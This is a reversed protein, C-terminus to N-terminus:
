KLWEIANRNLRVKKDTEMKKLLRSVVERSTNLDNAIQQHTITIDKKGAQSFQNSLYFELREDMGKFMVHDLLTLLEDFRDRYNELVFYYWSKYNKMLEDIVSVPIMIAVTDELAKGLVQSTEQKAACIISLACAQGPNLHYIFAEEGDDGERYLKVVGEAVLVTYKIYQGQRMILEGAPIHKLLAVEEIKDKLAPEFFPFRTEIYHRVTGTNANDM